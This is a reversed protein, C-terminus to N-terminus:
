CSGSPEVRFFYPGLWSRPPKSYIKGKKNGSLVQVVGLSFTSDPTDASRSATWCRWLALTAGVTSGGKMVQRM